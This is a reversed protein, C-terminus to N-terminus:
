ENYEPTALCVSVVSIQLIIMPLLLIVWAAEMSGLSVWFAFALFALTLLNIPSRVQQLCFTQLITLLVFFIIVADITRM